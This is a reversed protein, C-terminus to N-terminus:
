TWDFMQNSLNDKIYKSQKKGTSLVVDKPDTSVALDSFFAELLELLEVQINQFGMLRKRLLTVELHARAVFAFSLFSLHFQVSQKKRINADDKCLVQSVLPKKIM